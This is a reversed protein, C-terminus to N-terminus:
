QFRDAEKGAPPANSGPRVSNSNANAAAEAQLRRYRAVNQNHEALTRAFFHGGQADSVFYLFETEAPFLAAELAARGPNAIPGPPLSPNRYTNYPSDFRLDRLLLTAKPRGALRLAYLVTPDCQLHMRRELRNYFVGAVLPREDRAGTEEEVLSAMTVLRLASLGRPNRGEVPFSAWVERFRRVMAQAIEQATVRRPFAYTDPFLFGELSPADPAIDRVQAPDRAVALFNERHTFKERELQEAIEFMSLGEPITVRRTYIRGEALTTFVEVPTRAHDFFYEGAQPMRGRWRALAEFSMSSRVVGNQELLAAIHQVSAGRPIDVYVGEGPFGRYPTNWSWALWAVVAAAVLLLYIGLRM